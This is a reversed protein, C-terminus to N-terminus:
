KGALYISSLAICINHSDSTVRQHFNLSIGHSLAQEKCKQLPWSGAVLSTMLKSSFMCINNQYLLMATCHSKVVNHYVCIDTFGLLHSLHKKSCYM